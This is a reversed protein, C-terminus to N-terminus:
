RKDVLISKIIKWQLPRFRNHGFNTKLAMLYKEDPVDEGNKILEQTGVFQVSKDHDELKNEYASVASLFQEDDEDSFAM